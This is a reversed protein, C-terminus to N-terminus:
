IHKNQLTGDKEQQEFGYSKETPERCATHGCEFYVAIIDGDLMPRLLSLLMEMKGLCTPSFVPLMNLTLQFMGTQSPVSSCPYPFPPLPLLALLCASNILSCIWLWAHIPRM